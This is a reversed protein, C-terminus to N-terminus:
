TEVEAAVKREYLDAYEILSDALGDVVRERFEDSGLLREERPNSIFATEVLIAPMYAGNLVWFGAQKVGRDRLDLEDSLGEQVMGALSSSERLYENQALDWLIFNLDGLEEPDLDPNEFRLSANEIRAVRREDETKAESLFYTEFGQGSRNRASNCHISVFLDAGADNAMKTRKGLPVFVDSDRTLIVRLDASRSALEEALARAVALTVDKERLGTPGIAGADQGGHGADIVITRVGTRPRARKPAPAPAEAPAM